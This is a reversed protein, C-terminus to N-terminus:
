SKHAWMEWIVRNKGKERLEGWKKDKRERFKEKEGCIRFGLKV